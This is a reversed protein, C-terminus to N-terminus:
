HKFLQASVDAVHRLEWISALGPGLGLCHGSRSPGVKFVLITGPRRILDLPTHEFGDPRSIYRGNEATFHRVLSLM